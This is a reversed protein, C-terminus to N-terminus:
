LAVDDALVLLRKTNFQDVHHVFIVGAQQRRGVEFNWGICSAGYVAFGEGIVALMIRLLLLGAPLYLSVTLLYSGTEPDPALLQCLIM